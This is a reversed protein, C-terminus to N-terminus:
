NAIINKQRRSRVKKVDDRMTWVLLDRGKGVMAMAKDRILEAKERLYKAMNIKMGFIKLSGIQIM